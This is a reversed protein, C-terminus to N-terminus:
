RREFPGIPGTLGGPLYYRQPEYHTEATYPEMFHDGVLDARVFFANTGSFNCGVLRYGKHLGLLELSKLSSGVLSRSDWRHHPNYAMVWLDGERFASNYEIIVVRPAYSSLAKWVWYDNGDIDISLLDLELPVDMERFVAEVNEATLFEEKLTLQGNRMFEGYDRGIDAIGQPDPEIWYGNWGQLLLYLTNGAYGRAAGFEVFYRNTTGIRRFIEQIIGDEDHQSCVRFGYRMLNKPHHYKENTALVDRVYNDCYAHTFARVHNEMEGIFLYVLRRSM